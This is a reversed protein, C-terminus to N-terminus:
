VQTVTDYVFGFEADARIAGKISLMSSSTVQVVVMGAGDMSDTYGPYWAGKMLEYAQMGTEIPASSSSYVVIPEIGYPGGFGFNILHRYIAGGGGGSSNNVQEELAEVDTKLAQIENYNYKCDVSVEGITSLQMTTNAINVAESLTGSISTVVFSNDTVTPFTYSSVNWINETSQGNADIFKQAYTLLGFLAGTSYGYEIYV